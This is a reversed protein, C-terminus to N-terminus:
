ILKKELENKIIDNLHLYEYGRLNGAEKFSNSILTSEKNLFHSYCKQKNLVASDECYKKRSEVVADIKPKFIKVLSSNIELIQERTVEFTFESLISQITISPNKRVFNQAKLNLHFNYCSKINIDSAKCYLYIQKPDQFDSFSASFSAPMRRTDQVLSSLRGSSYISKKECSALFSGLFLLGLSNTLILKMLNKSKM